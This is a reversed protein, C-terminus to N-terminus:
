SRQSAAWGDNIRRVCLYSGFAGLATGGAILIVIAIPQIFTLHQGLQLFSLKTILLNKFFLYTGFCLSVALVSSIVGLLAGEKLFPKRIMSNTAGIMELVVIEDRRSQVSARIANSMVFLSAALIVLGLLKMTIEVAAVLAGYKEVWDQGYSVEDVGEKKKLDAALNQLVQMQDQTAVSPALSVQLSAPILKLLEEDQSMDPAYSALQTRFDGLASEQTVYRIEGVKGTEKLFSELGERGQQSLDQSLYVTMQVDEGWMTLINKFNQSILLAAGMVVFCATVVVLTSLKLAINKQPPKM